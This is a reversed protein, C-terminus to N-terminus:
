GGGGGHNLTLMGIYQTFARVQGSSVDVFVPGGLQAFVRTQTVNQALDSYKMVVSKNEINRSPVNWLMQFCSFLILLYYSPRLLTRACGFM